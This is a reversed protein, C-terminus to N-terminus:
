AGFTPILSNAFATLWTQELVAPTLWALWGLWALTFLIRAVFVVWVAGTVAGAVVGLLNNLQKLLPLKAVVDLLRLVIATLLYAVIFLIVSCLMQMLPLVIPTIVRDTIAQAVTEGAAVANVKELIAAGSDMEGAKLLGIVFAPLKELAADMQAATPLAETAFQEELTTMVVPEVATGYVANAIPGSLISAVVLAVVLAILGSVTKIFGRRWGIWVCLVFLAVLLIDLLYAM